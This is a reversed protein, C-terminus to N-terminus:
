QLAKTVADTAAFGQVSVPDFLWSQLYLETFLPVFAPLTFSSSTQGLPDTQFPLALNFTPVLVGGFVSQYNPSVGIVHVGIANALANDVSLSVQGSPDLYGDAHLDPAGNTGALSHGLTMWDRQQLWVISSVGGGVVADGFHEVVISQPQGGCAEEHHWILNGNADFRRVVEGLGPIPSCVGSVGGSGGIYVSDDPGVTIAKCFEDNGSFGDYTQTWQVNGGPDVKFTLWDMYATTSSCHGAVLINDASDVALRVAFAFPGNPGIHEVTWLENGNADLAVLLSALGVAGGCVYISGNSDFVIDQGSSGPRSDWFIENGNTDFVVSAMWSTSGGTLAVTGDPRVAMSHPDNFYGRQQRWLESGFPDYKIVVVNGAYTAGVYINDAADVEVRYGEGVTGDQVAWLVSGTNSFKVTLLGQGSRHGTLIVNGQSDATLWKSHEHYLPSGYSQVWVENGRPDTKRAYFDLLPGSTNTCINNHHDLVLRASQLPQRWAERVSQASAAVPVTVLALGFLLPLRVASLYTTM